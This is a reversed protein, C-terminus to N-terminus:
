WAQTVLFEELDGEPKESPALFIELTKQVNIWM